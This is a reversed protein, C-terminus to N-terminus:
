KKVFDIRYGLAESIKYLVDIGTSYKGLEIRAIHGSDIGTLEALKAQSLGKEKRLEAIRKGIRTRENEMMMINNDECVCYDCYWIACPKLIEDIIKDRDDGFTCSYHLIATLRETGAVSNCKFKYLPFDKKFSVIDINDRDFIEIISASRVHLILTRRELLNGFYSHADIFTWEPLFHGLNM